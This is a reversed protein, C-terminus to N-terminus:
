FNWYFRPTLEEGCVLSDSCPLGISCYVIALRVLPRTALNLTLM